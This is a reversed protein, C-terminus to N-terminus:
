PNPDPGGRAGKIKIDGTVEWDRGRVGVDVGRADEIVVSGGARVKELDVGAHVAAGPAQQQIVELLARALQLLQADHEAGADALEEALSAQKGQSDPRGELTQVHVGLQPFRATLAAKLRGYADQVAQTAVNTIGAAAGAALAATIPDV